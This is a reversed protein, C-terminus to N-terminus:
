STTVPATAPTRVGFVVRLLLAAYVCFGAAVAAFYGAIGLDLSYIAALL